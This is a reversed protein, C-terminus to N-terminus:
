ESAQGAAANREPSFSHWDSEFSAIDQDHELTTGVLDQGRLLQQKTAPAIEFGFESGGASIKQGELDITVESGSGLAAIQDHDEPPLETLLLGCNGSNTRFIDSYGPADDTRKAIVAKFGGQQIAWVAHERSSGCGFNTGVVLISAGEAAPQDLPFDAGRVDAFLLEGYGARSVRSLFRAPIIRDTDVDNQPLVAIRGTHQSFGAVLGNHTVQPPCLFAGRM